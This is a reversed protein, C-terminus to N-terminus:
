RAVRESNNRARVSSQAAQNGVAAEILAILSDISDIRALEGAAILLEAERGQELLIAPLAIELDPYRARFDPLHYVRVDLPMRALFRKWRRDIRLTGHTLACLSCPYTDPSLLKHLSDKIGAAIGAEANYVILLREPSV